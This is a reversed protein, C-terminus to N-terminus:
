PLLGYVVLSSNGGVFVKGNAVAPISFKVAFDMTDRTGTQNSNYLENALNTADYAHLVGPMTPVLQVAWLIGNNTGNSSIAMGGGPFYYTASSRSTPLSSLVGNTLAFVQVNDNIPSFYLNENFYVPSSFNGSDDGQGNPFVGVLDQVIQNLTPNYHGMSDRNILYIDGSKGAIGVLQPPSSPQDPLLLVGGSGLDLNNFDM